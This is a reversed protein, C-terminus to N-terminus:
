SNSSREVSTAPLGARATFGDRGPVVEAIRIGYHGHVVVASGRAVLRGNVLLEVPNETQVGFELVSGASLRTLKGLPMRASGFRVMVPVEMEMLLDLAGGPQRNEVHSVQRENRGLGDDTLTSM